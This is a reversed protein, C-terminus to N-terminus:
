DVEAEKKRRIAVRAKELSDSLGDLRGVLLNLDSRASELMRLIALFAAQLHTLVILEQSPTTAEPSSLSPSSPLDPNRESTPSSSM